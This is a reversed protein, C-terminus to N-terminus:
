DSGALSRVCHLLAERHAPFDGRHGELEVDEGDRTYLVAYRGPGPIEIELDIGRCHWEFQVGGSSLPVVSPQPTDPLSVTLLLELGYPAVARDIPPAGYSDWNAKLDMFSMMRGFVDVIWNPVARSGEVVVCFDGNPLVDVTWEAIGKRPDDNVEVTRLERDTLMAQSPANPPTYTKTTM